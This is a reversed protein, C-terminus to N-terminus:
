PALRAFEYTGRGGRRYKPRACALSLDRPAQGGGRGWRPLPFPHPPANLFEIFGHLFHFPVQNSRNILPYHYELVEVDGDKENLPTLFPNNAWLDPYPTRVDTLFRDPYYRHLDRIAATLMLIDGTALASRLFLKRTM